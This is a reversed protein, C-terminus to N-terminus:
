RRRDRGIISAFATAAPTEVRTLSGDAELKLDYLANNWGGPRLFESASRSPENRYNWDFSELLPWWNLGVIPFEDRRLRHVMDLLATAYAARAEATRGASTEMLYIPLGFYAQTRRLAAEVKETAERAAQALPVSGGRSYDADHPYDFLDPYYDYGVVDPPAANSSFWEIDKRAIGNKVLYTALADEPAVKGYALSSPFSGTSARLEERAATKRGATDFLMDATLWGVADASIIVAKRATSRLARTALVMARAIRVGLAAWDRASRKYPPWTGQAGSFTASVAPENCPTYHTVRGEFHAAIRQAYLALAAPFREDGIGDAMWASTGYHVLDLIPVIGLENVMLDVPGDLWSFDYSGPSPEARYWPISYRIANVGLKAALKLDEKWRADHQTLAYEDLVRRAGDKSPDAQAMWTNEIGVGWLFTGARSLPRSRRSPSLAASGPLLWATGLAALSGLFRRRQRVSM